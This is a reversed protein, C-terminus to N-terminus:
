TFPLPLCAPEVPESVHLISDPFTDIKRTCMDRRDSVRMSLGEVDASAEAVLLALIRGLDPRDNYVAELLKRTVFNRPVSKSKQGMYRTYQRM